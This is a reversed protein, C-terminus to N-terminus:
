TDCFTPLTEGLFGASRRQLEVQASIEAFTWQTQRRTEKGTPPSHIEAVREDKTLAALSKYFREQRPTPNVPASYRMRRLRDYEILSNVFESCIRLSISVNDPEQRTDHELTEARLRRPNNTFKSGFVCGEVHQKGKEGILTNDGFAFHDRPYVVSEAWIRVSKGALVDRRQMRLPQERVTPGDQGQRRWIEGCKISLGDGSPHLSRQYM